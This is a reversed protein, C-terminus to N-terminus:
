RAQGHLRHWEALSLKPYGDFASDGRRRKVAAWGV